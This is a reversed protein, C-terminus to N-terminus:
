VGIEGRRLPLRRPIRLLASAPVLVLGVLKVLQEAAALVDISPGIWVGVVRIKTLNDGVGILVRDVGVVLVDGRLKRALERLATRETARRHILGHLVRLLREGVPKRLIGGVQAILIKLVLLLKPLLSELVLKCGRLVVRLVNKTGGVGDVPGLTNLSLPVPLKGAETLKLLVIRLAVDILSIVIPILRAVAVVLLAERVVAVREIRDGSLKLGRGCGTKIRRVLRPRSAACERRASTTRGRAPRNTRGDCATRSTRSGGAPTRCDTRGCAEGRVVESTGM